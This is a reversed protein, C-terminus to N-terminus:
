RKATADANRSSAKGIGHAIIGASAKDSGHGPVPFPQPEIM